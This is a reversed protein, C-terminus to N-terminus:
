NHRGLGASGTVTVSLLTIKLWETISKSTCLVPTENCVYDQCSIATYRLLEM